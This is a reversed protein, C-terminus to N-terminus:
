QHKLNNYIDKISEGTLKSLLKAKQKPPIDLSQIDEMIINEGKMNSISKIIVVWEGRINSLKLKEVLDNARGKFTTQYIKTLEKVIFLERNNDLIKIQEILKLLRHPSEYIITNFDHEMIAKLQSNRQKGKHPLFGFFSFEKQEFGSMVYATLLANAGPLVDYPIKHKICFNVLLAGPDSICPMGADSVYVVKKLLLLKKNLTTLFEKENHSHLSKFEQIPFIINLKNSILHLLRKTVRTDECLIFEAEVLLKVSRYSIDELNGIPTPIFTLM